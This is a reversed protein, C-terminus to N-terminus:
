RISRTWSRYKRLLVRLLLIMFVFVVPILVADVGGDLVRAVVHRGGLLAGANFGSPPPSTLGVWASVLHMLVQFLDVGVRFVGGILIRSIALTDGM